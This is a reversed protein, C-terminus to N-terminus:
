TSYFCLCHICHLFAVLFNNQYFSKNKLWVKILDIINDPLGIIRLRKILLNICLYFVIKATGQGSVKHTLLQAFPLICFHMSAYHEELNADKLYSNLYLM